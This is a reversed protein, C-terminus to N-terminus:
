RAASVQISQPDGNGLVSLLEDDSIFFFRPFAARKSNLYDSLSKQCHELRERLAGLVELRGQECCADLVQVGGM